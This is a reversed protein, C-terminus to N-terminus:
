KGLDTAVNPVVPTGLGTVEDYRATANFGGNNGSSVDFFYYSYSSSGALGYLKADAGSLVPRTVNRFLM